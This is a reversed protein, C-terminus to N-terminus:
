ESVGVVYVNNTNAAAVFLRGTWRRRNRGQEGRGKARRWVMDTPHQGSACSLWAARWQQRKHHYVSGDAWSSVFYSKGDPHFLIRYPRRGTEFKEIVRGSQLNIVHILTTFCGRPM